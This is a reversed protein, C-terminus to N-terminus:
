SCTTIRKMIESCHSIFRFERVNGSFLKNWCQFILHISQVRLIDCNECIQTKTTWVSVFVTDNEFVQVKFTQMRLGGFRMQRTFSCDYYTLLKKNKTSFPETYVAGLFILAHLSNDLSMHTHITKHLEQKSVCTQAHQLENTDREIWLGPSNLELRLWVCWLWRISTKLM